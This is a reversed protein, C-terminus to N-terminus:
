HLVPRFRQLESKYKKSMSLARGSRLHVTGHGSPESKIREIQDRQVIHSRHIRIFDTPPLLDEVQKMTARMLYRQGQATIEVYNGAANVYEIREVQILCEDAGKSVLLTQPYTKPPQPQPQPQPQLQVEPQPLMEPQLLTEPLAQSQVHPEAQAEARVQPHLQPQPESQLEPEPQPQPRTQQPATEDRFHQHVRWILYLVGLVALYRPLHIAISADLPHRQTWADITVPVATAGLLFITAVCVRTGVHLHGSNAHTHLAKFVLPTALLWIGWDRLIHLCIAVYDPPTTLVVVEYLSCYGFAASLFLIWGISSTKIEGTGLGLVLPLRSASASISSASASM